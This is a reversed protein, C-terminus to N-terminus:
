ILGYFRGANQLVMTIRLVNHEYKASQSNPLIDMAVDNQQTGILLFWSFAM